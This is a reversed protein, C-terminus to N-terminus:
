RSTSYTANIVSRYGGDPKVPPADVGLTRRFGTRGLSALLYRVRALRQRADAHPTHVIPDIDELRNLQEGALALWASLV